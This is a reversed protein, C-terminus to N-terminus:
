TERYVGFKLYKQYRMELLRDIPTSLLEDLTEWLIERTNKFTQEPDWHAGGLPEPIVKDILKLNFLEKSTLKLVGSAENAKSGDKWLIAACGEPSIVSYIAYELMLVRDTAAIALAGGSGGEGIIVSITPTKVKLFTNISTAIARAQGREEAGIGPYAGPTDVFSILPFGFKEALLALREAKRYGEPHPMGFNRFTRENLDRGKEQGVFMVTIGNFKALGGIIAPDDGFYRDGKLEIIDTFLGNIFDISHPRDTHRAIQVIQWPTLNAYIIKKLNEAREELNRLEGELDPRNPILKRLEKLREEIEYIPKEFDLLRRM